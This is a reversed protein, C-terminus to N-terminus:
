SIIRARPNIAGILSKDAGIMVASLQQSSTRFRSLHTNECKLHPFTTISDVQAERKSAFRQAFDCFSLFGDADPWLPGLAISGAGLATARDQARAKPIERQRFLRM